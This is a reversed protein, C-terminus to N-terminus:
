NHKSISRITLVFSQTSERQIWVSLDSGELRSNHGSFMEPKRLIKGNISVEADSEGWGALIFAGNVFPSAESARVTLRVSKDKRAPHSEADPSPSLLYARQGADYSSTYRGDAIQLAPPHLWSRDLAALQSASKRSLGFLFFATKTPGPGEIWTSKMSPSLIAASAYHDPHLQFRGDSPIMNVPWHDWVPFHSYQTRVEPRWGYPGLLVGPQYVYFPKYESKTNIVAINANEPQAEFPFAPMAPDWSYTKAVGNQNAIGAAELSIQDEPKKGPPLLLSPETFSYKWKTGHITGNRVSVGDPYIYFYEDAVNGWGTLPDLDSLSGEVDVLSYRWHVVVRADSNELVSVQSFRSFKDNMHEATGIKTSSEFSQDGIWIGNETVLTNGYNSGRWFVLHFPQNPFNVVVDAASGMRWLRDWEPYLSLRTYAAQLRAGAPPMAPWTRVPFVPTKLATISVVQQAIEKAPLPRNYINLDDLAGDLSYLAPTSSKQRVQAAPPLNTLNRGISLSQKAAPEMDGQLFQGGANQGNIYLTVGHTADYVAAIHTWSNLPIENQSLVEKWRGWVGLQLGLHGDEDLGFSFGSHEDRQEAIAVWNWPYSQLAVWAELTISGKLNPMTDGSRLIVTSFGDFSLAHGDVGKVWNAYGLITDAKGTVSDIAKDGGQEDFKWSAVPASGAAQAFIGAPAHSALLLISLLRDRGRM